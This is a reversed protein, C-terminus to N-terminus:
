TIAMRGHWAVLVKAYVIRDNTLQMRARTQLEIVDCIFSSDVRKSLMSLLILFSTRVMRSITRWCCCNCNCCCCSRCKCEVCCCWDVSLLSCEASLSFGNAAEIDSCGNSLSKENSKNPSSPRRCRLAAPAKLTCRDMDCGSHAFVFISLLKSLYNVFPCPCAIRKASSQVYQLKHYNDSSSKTQLHEFNEDNLWVNFSVSCHVTKAGMAFNSDSSSISWTLNVNWADFQVVDILWEAIGRSENNKIKTWLVAFMGRIQIFRLLDWVFLKASNDGAVISSGTVCESEHEMRGRM